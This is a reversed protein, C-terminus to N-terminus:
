DLCYATGGRGLPALLAVFLLGSAFDISVLSRICAMSVEDCTSTLMTIVAGLVLGGNDALLAVSVLM